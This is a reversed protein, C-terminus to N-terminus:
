FLSVTNREAEMRLLVGMSSTPFYLRHIDSFIHGM